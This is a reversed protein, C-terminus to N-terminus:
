RNHSPQGRVGGRCHAKGVMRVYGDRRFERPVNRLRSRRPAGRLHPGTRGGAFPRLRCSVTEGGASDSSLKRSLGGLLGNRQLSVWHRRWPRRRM